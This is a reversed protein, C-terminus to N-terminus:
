VLSFKHTHRRQWWRRKKHAARKDLLYKISRKILSFASSPSSAGAMHSWGGMSFMLFFSAAYSLFCLYGDAAAKTGPILKEKTSKGRSRCILSLFFFCLLCTKLSSRELELCMQNCPASQEGTVWLSRCVQRKCATRSDDEAWTLSDHTVLVNAKIVILFNESKLFPM